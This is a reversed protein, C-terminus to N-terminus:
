EVGHTAGEFGFKTVVALCHEEEPLGFRQCRKRGLAAEEGAPNLFTRRLLNL